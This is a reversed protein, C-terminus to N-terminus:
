SPKKCSTADLKLGQPPSLTPQNFLLGRPLHLCKCSLPAAVLHHPAQCPCCHSMFPKPSCELTQPAQIMWNLTQRAKGTLEKRAPSSCRLLAALLKKPYSISDGM